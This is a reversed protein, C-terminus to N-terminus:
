FELGRKRAGEALAKVRGHYQYPGRDFVVQKIGKKLAKQAILKGVLYAREIKPHKGQLRSSAFSRAGSTARLRSIKRKREKPAKATGQKKDSILEKGSAAVLTEGKQDDIIQAWLYRHSRFVSLRPRHIRHRRSQRDKM